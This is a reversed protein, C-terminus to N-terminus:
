ILLEVIMFMLEIVILIVIVWEVFLGRMSQSVSSLGDVINRLIETKNKIIEYRDNLEFFDSLRDYFLGADSNTWAINPKDLIMIYAISNYEHRIIGSTIRALEKNGIRLRGKELNDIKTELKDFINGLHEEIRELAASKAIVIAILDVYYPEMKPVQVYRDTLEIGEGEGLHLAYNEEFSNYAGIISPQLKKLYSMFMQIRPPTTNVFVISGFSYIYIKENKAPISGLIKELLSEQIILPEEWTYKKKIGCAVAIKNLDIEKVVAFTTFKMNDM